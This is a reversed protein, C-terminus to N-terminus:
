ESRRALPHDDMPLRGMAAVTRRAAAGDIVIGAVPALGLAWRKAMRRGVAKAARKSLQKVANMDIGLLAAAVESSLVHPDVERGATEIAHVRASVAIWVELVFAVLLGGGAFPITPAAVGDTFLVALEDIEAVAAGTAAALAAAVEARRQGHIPLPHQALIPVVVESLRGTEEEIVTVLDKPNRISAFRRISANVEDRVGEPITPMARRAIAERASSVGARIQEM